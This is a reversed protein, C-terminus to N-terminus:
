RTATKAEEYALVPLWENLQKRTELLTTAMLDAGVDQLQERNADVNYKLGWRGIIIKLEPCRARL